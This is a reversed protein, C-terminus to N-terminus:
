EEVERYEGEIIDDETIVGAEKLTNIRELAEAPTVGFTAQVPERSELVAILQPGYTNHVERVETAKGVLNEILKWGTAADPKFAVLGKKGCHECKVKQPAGEVAWMLNDILASFSRQGEETPLIPILSELAARYTADNRTLRTNSQPAAVVAGDEKKRRPYSGSVIRKTDATLVLPAEPRHGPQVTCEGSEVRARLGDDLLDLLEENM